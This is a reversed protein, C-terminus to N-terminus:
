ATTVGVAARSTNPGGRRVVDADLFGDARLGADDLLDEAWDRLPGRVWDDIPVGFGMKPRDILERPVYKYLVQRPVWKGQGQHLKLASPLRWAFEM